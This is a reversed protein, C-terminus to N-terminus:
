RQIERDRDLEYPLDLQQLRPGELTGLHLNDDEAAEAQLVALLEINGEGRAAIVAPNSRANEAMASELTVANMAPKTSHNNPAPATRPKATTSISPITVDINVATIPLRAKTCIM